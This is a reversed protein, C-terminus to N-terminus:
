HKAAKRLRERECALERLRILYEADTEPRHRGTALSWARHANPLRHRLRRLEIADSVWRWPSVVGHPM